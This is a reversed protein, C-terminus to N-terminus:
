KEVKISDIMPFFYNAAIEESNEEGSPFYNFYITIMDEAGMFTIITKYTDWTNDTAPQHISLTDMEVGNANDYVGGQLVETNEWGEATSYLLRLYEDVDFVSGENLRAQTIEAFHARGNWLDPPENYYAVAKTSEDFNFSTRVFEGTSSSMADAVRNANYQDQEASGSYDVWFWNVPLTIEYHNVEDTIQTQGDPLHLFAYSTNQGWGNEPTEEKEDKNDEESSVTLTTSFSRLTLRLDDLVSYSPDLTQFSIELYAKGTNALIYTTYLPIDRAVEAEIIVMPMGSDSIVKVINNPVVTDPLDHLFIKAYRDLPVAIREPEYFQSVSMFVTKGPELQESTNKFACMSYLMDEYNQLALESFWKIWHAVELNNETTAAYVKDLKDKEAPTVVWNSDFAFSFDIDNFVYRWAEATAPNEAENLPLDYIPIEDGVETVSTPAPPLDTATSQTVKTPIDALAPHIDSPLPEEKSNCASLLVLILIYIVSLSKKIQM